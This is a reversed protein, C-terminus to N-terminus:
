MPRRGRRSAIIPVACNPCYGPVDFASRKLKFRDIDVRTVGVDQLFRDSLTELSDHGRRPNNLRVFLRRLKQAITPAPRPTPEATVKTDPIFNPIVVAEADEIKEFYM